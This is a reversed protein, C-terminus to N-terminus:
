RDMIFDDITRLADADCSAPHPHPSTQLSIRPYIGGDSNRELVDPLAYGQCFSRRIKELSQPRVAIVAVAVEASFFLHREVFPAGDVPLQM